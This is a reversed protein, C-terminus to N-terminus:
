KKKLIPFIVNSFLNNTTNQSNIRRRFLKIERNSGRINITKIKRKEKKKKEKREKEKKKERQKKRETEGNKMKSEIPSLHFTNVKSSTLILSFYKPNTEM